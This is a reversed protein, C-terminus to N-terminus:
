KDEEFKESSIKHEKLLDKIKRKASFSPEFKENEWRNVTNFSVGLMKALDTQSIMLEERIKKIIESYNM